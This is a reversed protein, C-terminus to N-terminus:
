GRDEVVVLRRKLVSAQVGVLKAEAAERRETEVKLKSELEVEKSSRVPQRPAEDADAIREGQENFRRRDNVPIKGDHEPSEEIFDQEVM